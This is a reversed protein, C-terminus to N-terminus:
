RTLAERARVDEYGAAPDDDVCPVDLSIGGHGISRLAESMGLASWLGFFCSLLAAALMITQFPIDLLPDNM